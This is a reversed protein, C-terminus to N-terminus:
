NKKKKTSNKLEIYIDQKKECSFISNLIGMIFIIKKILKFM